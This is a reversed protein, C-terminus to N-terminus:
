KSYGARYGRINQEDAYTRFDKGNKVYRKTQTCYVVFASCEEEARHRIVDPDIDMLMPKTEHCSLRTKFAMTDVNREFNPRHNTTVFANLPSIRSPAARKTAVSLQDDGDFLRKLMELESNSRNWINVEEFLAIYKGKFCSMSYIGDDVYYTIHSGYITRLPIHLTSKGTSSPGWIYPVMGRREKRKFLSGYVRAFCFPNDTTEWRHNDIMEFYSTPEPGPFPIPFHKIPFETRSDILTGTEMSYMGDSFSIISPNPSFNPLEFLRKDQIYSSILEVGAKGYVRVMETDQALKRFFDEEEMEKYEFGNLKCIKRTNTNVALNNISMFGIIDDILDSEHKGVRNEGTRSKEPELRNAYKSLFTEVNEGKDLEIYGSKDPSYEKLIYRIVSSKSKCFQSNTRGGKVEKSIDDFIKRMTDKKMPNSLYVYGHYHLHKDGESEHQLILNTHYPLKSKLQKVIDDVEGKSGTFPKGSDATLTFFINRSRDATCEPINTNTSAKPKPKPPM